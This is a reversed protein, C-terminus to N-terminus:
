VIKNFHLKKMEKDLVIGFDEKVTEKSTQPQYYETKQGFNNQNYWNGSQVQGVVRIIM